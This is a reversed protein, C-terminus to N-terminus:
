KLVVNSGHILGEAQQVGSTQDVAAGVGDVPAAVQLGGDGVNLHVVNSQFLLGLEFHGAVVFWYLKSDHIVHSVFNFTFPTATLFLFLYSTIKEAPLSSSITIDVVLGSVRSPSSATATCGSSSRYWCRM